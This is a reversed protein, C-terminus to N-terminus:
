LHVLVRGNPSEKRNLWGKRGGDATALEELAKEDIPAPRSLMLDPNRAGARWAGGPTRFVPVRNRGGARLAFWDGDARRM